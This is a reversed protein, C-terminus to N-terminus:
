KIVIPKIKLFDTKQKKRKLVIWKIKYFIILLSIFQVSYIDCFVFFFYEKIERLNRPERMNCVCTNSTM